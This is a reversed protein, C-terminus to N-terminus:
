PNSPSYEENLAEIARERDFAVVNSNNNEM